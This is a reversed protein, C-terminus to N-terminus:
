WRGSAGGGGFGGGGGGFGGGSRSFGGGSGQLAGGIQSAGLLVFIFAAVGIGIGALMSGLMIGGAAGAVSGAIAAGPLRGFISRAIGGVFFVAFMVMALWDDEEGKSASASEAPPPLPEGQIIASLRNVGESIGGFFDGRRFAPLIYEEIVRKAIVDPVAGELGYGVEIRVARDDKAVLLLVGDDVGKRGLKWQEAVRISFQEISEPQTTPIILVALQSGKVRELEALQQELLRIQENQLTQTLDTVRAKLPPIAIDAQAATALLLSLCLLWHLLHKM